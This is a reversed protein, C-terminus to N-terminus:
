RWKDKQAFDKSTWSAENCSHILMEKYTGISSKCIIQAFKVSGDRQAMKTQGLVTYQATHATHVICLACQETYLTCQVNCFTCHKIYITCIHLACHACHASCVACQVNANYM